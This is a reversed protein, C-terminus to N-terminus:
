LEGEVDNACTSQNWWRQFNDVAVQGRTVGAGGRTQGVKEAYWLQGDPCSFKRWPWVVRHTVDAGQSARASEVVADANLVTQPLRDIIVTMYRDVCDPHLQTAVFSRLNAAIEEALPLHSVFASALQTCLFGRWDRVTVGLPESRNFGVQAM